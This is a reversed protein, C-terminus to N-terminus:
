DRAAYSNCNVSVISCEWVPFTKCKKFSRPLLLEGETLPIYQVCGFEAKCCHMPPMSVKWLRSFGQELSTALRLGCRIPMERFCVIGVFMLSASSSELVRTLKSLNPHFLGLSETAKVLAISTPPWQRVQNLEKDTSDLIEAVSTGFKKPVM